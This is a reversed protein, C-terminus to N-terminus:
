RRALAEHELRLDLVLGTPAAVASRPVPAGAKVPERLDVGDALGLPLLGEALAVDIREIQGRVLAGGSGDLQDGPKLDRKAVAVVDAVPAGEAAATPRGFLAAEAISMPTEVGCLHYARWFAAYRKDPSAPLGYFPLDERLLPQETTVVVWVGNAIENAVTSTGDEAVANALDVVGLRALLGGESTPRFLSPLDTYGASPEHMGRKDPLLGTANALACMEIQAKSGDRFSNYMRPNFRRREVIDPDFGYRAFAEDPVGTPDDPYMRTGRGAAAVTYGAARAWDVMRKTVAPQDGDALTYVVGAARARQALAAGLLADAEVTVMVVHKGARIAGDAVRAAVFPSGTAEVVVDVPAELTRTLDDTVETLDGRRAGAEAAMRASEPNLDCVLALRLGRMQGVSAAVTTGFRGAGVLAVRVPRGMEERAALGELMGRANVGTVSM